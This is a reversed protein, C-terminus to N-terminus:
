ILHGQFEGHGTPGVVPGLRQDVAGYLGFADIKVDVHIFAGPPLRLDVALFDVGSLKVGSRVDGVQM